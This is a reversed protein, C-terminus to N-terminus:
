YSRADSLSLRVLILLIERKAVCFSLIEYTFALVKNGDSATSNESRESASISCHLLFM